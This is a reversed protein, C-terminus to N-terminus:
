PRVHYNNEVERVGFLKELFQILRSARSEFIVETFGNRNAETLIWNLARHLINATAHRSVKQDHQLSVRLVREIRVWVRNGRGDYFTILEGPTSAWDEAAQGVHEPDSELCDKFCAMDDPTPKRLEVKM